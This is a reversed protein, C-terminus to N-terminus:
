LGSAMCSHTRTTAPTDGAIRAATATAAVATQRRANAFKLKHNAGRLHLKQLARIRKACTSEESQLMRGAVSAFCRGPNGLRLPRQAKSSEGFNISLAVRKHGACRAEFLGGPLLLLNWSGPLSIEVRRALRNRFPVSNRHLSIAYEPPSEFCRGSSARDTGLDVLHLDSQRLFLRGRLLRSTSAFAQEDGDVRNLPSPPFRFVSPRFQVVDAPSYSGHRLAASLSSQGLRYRHVRLQGRLKVM